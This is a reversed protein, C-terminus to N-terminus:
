LAVRDVRGALVRDHRQGNRRVRRGGPVLNPPPDQYGPLRGGAWHWDVDPPSLVRPM